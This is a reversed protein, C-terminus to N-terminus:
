LSEIFVIDIRMHNGYCVATRVAMGVVRVPIHDFLERDIDGPCLLNCFCEPIVMEVDPYGLMTDGSGRPIKDVQM